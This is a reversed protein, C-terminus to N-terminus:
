RCIRIHEVYKGPARLPWFLIDSGWPSSNFLTTLQWTTGPLSDLDEPLVVVMRRHHASEEAETERIKSRSTSQQM